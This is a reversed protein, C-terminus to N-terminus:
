LISETKCNLLNNCNHDLDYLEYNIIIKNESNNIIKINSNYLLKILNDSNSVINQSKFYNEIILYQEDDIIRIYYSSYDEYNFIYISNKEIEINEKKIIKYNNDFKEIKYNNPTVYYVVILIIALIIIIGFIIIGINVLNHSKKNTNYNYIVM